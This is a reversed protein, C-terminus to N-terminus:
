GAIQELSEIKFCVCVRWHSGNPKSIIILASQRTGRSIPSERNEIDSSFRWRKHGSESSVASRDITVCVCM